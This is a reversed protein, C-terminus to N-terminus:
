FIRKMENWTINLWCLSRFKVPPTNAGGIFYRSALDCDCKTSNWSSATENVSNRNQATPPFNRQQARINSTKKFSYAFCNRKLSFAFKNFQFLMLFLSVLSTRYIKWDCTSFFCYFVVFERSIVKHLWISCVINNCIRM